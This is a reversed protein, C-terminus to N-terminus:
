IAAMLWVKNSVFQYSFMTIISTICRHYNLDKLNNSIDMVAMTELNEQDEHSLCKIHHSLCFLGRQSFRGENRFSTFMNSMLSLLSNLDDFYNFNNGIVQDEHLVNYNTRQAKLFPLIVSIPKINSFKFLFSIHVM